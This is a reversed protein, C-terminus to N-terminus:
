VILGELIGANSVLLSKPPFHDLIEMVLLVGAGIIDARGPELGALKVRQNLPLSLIEGSLQHLCDKTLLTGNIQDPDYDALKQAMAALTTVTGATGILTKINDNKILNRKLINQCHAKLSEAENQRPPDSNLFQETLAVVGLPLSIREAMQGDKVFVFESSGGGIDFILTEGTGSPFRSLVGKAMIRAEELGSIIKVPLRTEKKIKELFFSINEAERLVGTGVAIIQTVGEQDARNKFRNLVKIADEMALPSLLRGPFFNRGLRVIERDLFISHFGQNLREAILLRLTNSGIDITAIKKL